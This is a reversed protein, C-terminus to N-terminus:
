IGARRRQRAVAKRLDKLESAVLGNIRSQADTVYERIDDIHSRERLERGAQKVNRRVGRRADRGLKASRAAFRVAPGVPHKGGRALLFTASAGVM